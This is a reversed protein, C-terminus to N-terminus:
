AMKFKNKHKTLTHELKMSKCVPITSEWYWKSFLNDKRGLINKGGKKFISLLHTPKNRPERNDEVSGYTQALIM